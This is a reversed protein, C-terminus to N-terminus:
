KNQEENILDMKVWTYDIKKATLVYQGDYTDTPLDVLETMCNFDAEKCGDDGSLFIDLHTLICHLYLSKNTPIVVGLIHGCINAGFVSLSEVGGFWIGM